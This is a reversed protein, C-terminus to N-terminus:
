GDIGLSERMYYKDVDFFFEVVIGSERRQFFGVKLYYEVVFSDRSLKFGKEFDLDGIFFDKKQDLGKEILVSEKKMMLSLEIGINVVREIVCIVVDGKSYSLIREVLVDMVVDKQLKVSQSENM